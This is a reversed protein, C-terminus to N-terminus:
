LGTEYYVLEFGAISETGVREYGLSEYLSQAPAMEEGTDLVARDYGRDRAREHLEEMLARGVGRRQFAPAVRLSRVEVTRDDGEVPSTPRISATECTSPLFGGIGVVREDSPGYGTPDAPPVDVVAVLFEGGPDLFRTEVHRLHRNLEPYFELDSRRFARDHVQWVDNVDAPEYRRIRVDVDEATPPEGAM